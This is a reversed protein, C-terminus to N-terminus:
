DQAYVLESSIYSRSCISESDKVSPQMDSFHQIEKNTVVAEKVDVSGSCNFHKQDDMLRTSPCAVTFKQSLSSLQTKFSPEAFSKKIETPMAGLQQPNTPQSSAKNM